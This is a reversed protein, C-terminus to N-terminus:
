GTYASAGAAESHHGKAPKKTAENLQEVYHIYEIAEGCVPIAPGFDRGAPNSGTYPAEKGARHVFVLTDFFCTDTLEKDSSNLKRVDLTKRFVDKSQVELAVINEGIGPDIVQGLLDRIQGANFRPNTAPEAPGTTM